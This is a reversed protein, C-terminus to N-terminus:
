FGFSQSFPQFFKEKPYFLLGHFLLFLPAHDATLHDRHDATTDTIRALLADASLGQPFLRVGASLRFLFEFFM